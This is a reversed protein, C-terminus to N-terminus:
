SNILNYIAVVIAGLSFGSMSFIGLLLRKQTKSVLIEDKVLEIEKRNEAISKETAKFREEGHTRAEEFKIKFNYMESTALNLDNRIAPLSSNMAKIDTRTEKYFDESNKEMRALTKEIGAIREKLQSVEVEQSM